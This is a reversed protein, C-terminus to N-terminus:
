KSGSPIRGGPQLFGAGSYARAGRDLGLGSGARLAAFYPSFQIGRFQLIKEGFVAAVLELCACSLRPLVSGSGCIWTPGIALAGSVTPFM